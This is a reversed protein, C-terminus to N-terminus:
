YRPNYGQSGLLLMQFFSLNANEVNPPTQRPVTSLQYMRTQSIKRNNDIGQALLKVPRTEMARMLFPFSKRTHPAWWGMPLQEPQVWSISAEPRTEERQHRKFYRHPKNGESCLSWELRPSLSTKRWLPSSTYNRSIKTTATVPKSLQKLM